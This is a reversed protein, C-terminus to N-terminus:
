EDEEKQTKLFHDLRKKISAVMGARKDGSLYATLITDLMAEAEAHLPTPPKPKHSSM